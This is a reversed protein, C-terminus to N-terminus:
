DDKLTLFLISLHVFIVKAKALSATHPIHQLTPFGPYYVSLQVGKCLGKVLKDLPVLIDDRNVLIMQAYSRISPFYEPAEYIGQEKEIFTFISMPGHSNRKREEPSLKANCPEM